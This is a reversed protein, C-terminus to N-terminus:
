GFPRCSLPPPPWGEKPKERRTMETNYMHSTEGEPKRERGRRKGKEVRAEEGIRVRWQHHNSCAFRFIHCLFEMMRRCFFLVAVRMIFAVKMMHKSETSAIDNM